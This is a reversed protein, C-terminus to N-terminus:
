QDIGDTAAETMCELPTRRRPYGYPHRLPTRTIVLHVFRAAWWIPMLSLLIGIVIIMVFIDPFSYYSRHINVNKM